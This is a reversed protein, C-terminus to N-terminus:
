RYQQKPKRSQGSRKALCLWVHQHNSDVVETRRQPAEAVFRRDGWVDITQGLPAHHKILRVALLRDATRGTERHQGAQARVRNLDPVESGVEPLALWVGDRQRLMKLIVPVMRAANPLNKVAAALRRLIGLRPRHKRQVVVDTIWFDPIRQRFIELAASQFARRTLGGIHRIIVVDVADHGVVRKTYQALQAPIFLRKKERDTKSFGM